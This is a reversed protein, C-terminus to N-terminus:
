QMDRFANLYLRIEAAPWHTNALEVSICMVVTNNLNEHKCTKPLTPCPPRLMEADLDHRECSHSSRKALVSRRENQRLETFCHREGLNSDTLWSRLM